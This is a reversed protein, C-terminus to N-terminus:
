KLVDILLLFPLQRMSQTVCDGGNIVPSTATSGTSATARLPVEDVVEIQIPVVVEVQIPDGAEVQVAVM